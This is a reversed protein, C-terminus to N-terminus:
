VFFVPFPSLGLLVCCGLGLTFTAPCRLGLQAVDAPERFATKMEGANEVAVSVFPCVSTMPGDSVVLARQAIGPEASRVCPITVLQRVESFRPRRAFLQNGEV